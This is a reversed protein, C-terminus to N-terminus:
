IRYKAKEGMRWPPHTTPPKPEGELREGQERTVPGKTKGRVRSLGNEPVSRIRDDLTDEHNYRMPPISGIFMLTEDM